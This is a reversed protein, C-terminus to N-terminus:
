QIRREKMIQPLYKYAEEKSLGYRIAELLRTIAYIEEEKDHLYDAIVALSYPNKRKQSNYILDLIRESAYSMSNLDDANLRPGYVTGAIISLVESDTDANIIAEIAKESLKYRIPILIRHTQEPSLKYIRKCRLIWRLNMLDIDAGFSEVVAKQEKAPLTKTLLRWSETFYYFDLTEEYDSLQTSGSSYIPMLLPEYESGALARMFEELTDCHNLNDMTLKSHKHFFEDFGELAIDPSLLNVVNRLSQKILLIEFHRFYLMLYDRVKLNAFHYLRCYDSYLSNMLRRECIERHIDSDVTNEFVSSYGPHSRIFGIASRFDGSELLANYDEATFLNKRMARTKTVLGSYEIVGGM